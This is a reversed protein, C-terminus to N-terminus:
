ASAAAKSPSRELMGALCLGDMIFAIGGSEKDFWGTHHVKGDAFIGQEKATRAFERCASRPLGSRIAIEDANTGIEAACFLFVMARDTENDPDFDENVTRVAEVARENLQRMKSM